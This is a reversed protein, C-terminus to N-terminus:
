NRPRNRRRSIVMGISFGGRIGDPKERSGRQITGHPAAAVTVLSLGADDEALGESFDIRWM